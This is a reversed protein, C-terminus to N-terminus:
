TSPIIFEGTGANTYFTKSVTDYMGPKSDSKRVCPVYNASISGGNKFVLSYLRLKTHIYQASGNNNWAFIYLPEGKGATTRTDTRQTTAGDVTLTQGIMKASYKTNSGAGAGTLVNAFRNNGNNCYWRVADYLEAYVCDCNNANMDGFLMKDGNFNGTFVYEWEVALDAYDIVYTTAIYQTGTGELYEVARYAGPLGGVSQM